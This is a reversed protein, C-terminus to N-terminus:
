AAAKAWTRGDASLLAACAEACRRAAEVCRERQAPSAACRACADACARGAAACALLLARVAHPHAPKRTLVRWTAGSTDVFDLAARLAAVHDIAPPQSLCADAYATGACVAEFCAQACADVADGDFRPVPTRESVLTM